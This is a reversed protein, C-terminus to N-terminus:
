QNFKSPDILHAAQPLTIKPPQPRSVTGPKGSDIWKIDPLFYSVGDVAHDELDTNLDEMKNEDPQMLPITRILNPCDSTIMWYPLGDIAKRMWNDMVAWRAIRNKTGKEFLERQDAFEDFAQNMQDKIGMSGDTLPDFMSPDVLIKKNETIQYKKRMLLIEKVWDHPSKGVGYLEAFTFIRNFKVTDDGDFHETPFLVHAHWAFPATRGWDISEYVTLGQKPVISGEHVHTRYFWTPFFRGASEEFSAMYEQNFFALRGKEKAEERKEDIYEVFTERERSGEPWAKNDYSSFHWSMWDKHPKIPKGFDTFLKNHDGKLAFDHFWNLGKPTGIYLQRHNPSDALAPEITDFAEQKVDAVEDWIILDLGSGRLSDYNDSGKLRIWSETQHFYLSLESKDAKCIGAQVYPMFYKTIDPDIWYIEKAQRYLPLVIWIVQRPTQIAHAIAENLGLASKGFRRGAVVVRYRAKSGHIKIQNVHPNYLFLENTM